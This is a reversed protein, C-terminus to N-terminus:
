KVKKLADVGDWFDEDNRHDMIYKQLRDTTATLVIEGKDPDNPHEPDPARVNPIENPHLQLRKELWAQNFSQLKLSEGIEVARLLVHAPIDFGGRTRSHLDLLREDGLKFLRGDFEASEDKDALTVKYSNTGLGKEFRWTGGEGAAKEPDRWEGLLKEDFFVDKDNYFPHVSKQWCGTLLAAVAFVALALLKRNM